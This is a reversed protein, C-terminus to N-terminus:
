VRPGIRYHYGYREVFGLSVYLPRAATNDREVQLYLESAGRSLARRALAGVVARGLGKRRHPALTLMSFIGCWDGRAVGLGVAAPEGDAEALAFLASAGIRELLSRYVDAVAAFRGLRGSIHFWDEFLRDEVRTRTGPPVIAAVARAPATQISVPADITYGRTALADDLAPPRAIPSIQIISRQGREEYFARARALRDDLALANGAEVVWASNARRSVGHTFRLRWGDLEVVEDAPWAGFAHRELLAITPDFTDFV